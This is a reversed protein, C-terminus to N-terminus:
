VGAVIRYPDPDPQRLIALTSCLYPPPQLDHSDISRPQQVYKMYTGSPHYFVIIQPKFWPPTVIKLNEFSQSSWKQYTGTNPVLVYFHGRQCGIREWCEWATIAQKSEISLPSSQMMSYLVVAETAHQLPIEADRLLLHNMSSALLSSSSSDQTSIYGFFNHRRENWWCIIM